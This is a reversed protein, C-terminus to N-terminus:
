LAALDEVISEVEDLWGPIDAEGSAEFRALRAAVASVGKPCVAGIRQGNATAALRGANKTLDALQQGTTIDGPSAAVVAHIGAWLDSYERGVQEHGAWAEAFSSASKDPKDGGGNVWGQTQAFEWGGIAVVVTFLTM